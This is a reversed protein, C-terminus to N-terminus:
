NSPMANDINDVSVQIEDLDTRTQELEMHLMDLKEAMLGSTDLDDLKNLLRLQDRHHIWFGAMLTVLLLWRWVSDWPWKRIANLLFLSSFRQVMTM